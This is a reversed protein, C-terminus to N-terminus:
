DVFNFSNEGNVNLVATHSTEGAKNKATCTYEGANSAHVSDIILQIIKKSPRTVSVGDVPSIDHSNHKWSIDLPFDGKSVTCIISVTEEADIANESFEFPTIQPPVIFFVIFIFSFPSCTHVTVRNNIAKQIM